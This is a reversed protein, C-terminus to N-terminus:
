ELSEAVSECAEVIMEVESLLQRGQLRNSELRGYLYQEHNDSAFRCISLVDACSIGYAM